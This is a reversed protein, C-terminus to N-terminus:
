KRRLFSGLLPRDQRERRGPRLSDNVSLADAREGLLRRIEDFEVPSETRDVLLVSKGSVDAVLGGKVEHRLTRIIGSRMRSVRRVKSWPIHHRRLAARREVGEASFEASLPLDYLAVGVVVVALVGVIVSGVTVGWSVLMAVAIIVLIVAGAAAAGITVPSSTIVISPEDSRADPADSV